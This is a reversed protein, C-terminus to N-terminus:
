ITERYTMSGFIDLGASRPRAALWIEDRTGDIAAGIRISNLLGSQKDTNGTVHGADLLTGGTLTTASPNGATDGVGYQTAGDTQDTWTPTGAVTPNLWLGWLFDDNTSALVSM